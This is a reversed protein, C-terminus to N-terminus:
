PMPGSGNSRCLRRRPANPIDSSHDPTRTQGVLRMDAHRADRDIIKQISVRAPYALDVTRHHLMQAAEPRNM